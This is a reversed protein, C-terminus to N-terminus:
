YYSEELQALTTGSEILYEIIEEDAARGSYSSRSLIINGAVLLILFSAVLALYPLLNIRARKAPVESLRTRLNEFYGDPTSYPFNKKM